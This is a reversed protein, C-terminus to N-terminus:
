HLHHLRIPQWEDVDNKCKGLTKSSRKSALPYNFEWKRPKLFKFDNFVHTGACLCSCIEM